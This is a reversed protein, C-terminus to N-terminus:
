ANRIPMDAPFTCKQAIRLFENETCPPYPVGRDNQSSWIALHDMSYPWEILDNDGYIHHVDVVQGLIHDPLKQRLVGYPIRFPPLSRCEDTLDFVDYMHIRD